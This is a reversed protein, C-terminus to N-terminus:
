IPWYKLSILYHEMWLQGRLPGEEKDITGVVLFGVAGGVGKVAAVPRTIKSLMPNLDDIKRDTHVQFKISSRLFCYPVEEKSCWAKRM